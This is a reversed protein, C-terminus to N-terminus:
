LSDLMSALGYDAALLSAVMLNGLKFKSTQIKFQEPTAM